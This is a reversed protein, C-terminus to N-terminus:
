RLSAVVHAAQEALLADAPPSVAVSALWRLVLDVNVASTQRGAVPLAQAVLSAAHARVEGGPGDVDPYVSAAVWPDFTVVARVVPSTALATAAEVLARAPDDSLWSWAREAAADVEEVAVAALVDDKTRFHNYVTAKAVHGRDAVGSMTLSHIGGSVLMTRAGALIGARGRAMANGSRARRVSVDLDTV